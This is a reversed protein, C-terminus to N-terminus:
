PKGGVDCRPLKRSKKRAGKGGKLDLPALDSLEVPEDFLREVADLLPKPTYYMAKEAPPPPKDGSPFRERGTGDCVPCDRAGSVTGEGHCARCSEPKEMPKEGTSHRM